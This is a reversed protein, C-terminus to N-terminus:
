GNNSHLSSDETPVVVSKELADAERQAQREAKSRERKILMISYEADFVRKVSELALRMDGDAIGFTIALAEAEALREQTRMVVHDPLAPKGNVIVANELDEAVEQIKTRLRRGVARIEELLSQKAIREIEEQESNDFKLYSVSAYKGTILQAENVIEKLADLKGWQFLYVSLNIRIAVKRIKRQIKNYLTKAETPVDYVLVGYEQKDM